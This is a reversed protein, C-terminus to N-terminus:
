NRDQTLGHSILPEYLPVPVRKEGLVANQKRGDTNHWAGYENEIVHQEKWFSSLHAFGPFSGFLLTCFLVKM